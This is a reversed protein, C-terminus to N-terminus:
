LCVNTSMLAKISSGIVISHKLRYTAMSGTKVEIEMYIYITNITSDIIIYIIMNIKLRYTSM